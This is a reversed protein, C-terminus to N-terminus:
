HEVPLAIPPSHPVFGKEFPLFFGILKDGSMVLYAEHVNSCELTLVQDKSRLVDGEAITGVQEWRTTKRLTRSNSCPTDTLPVEAPLVITRTSHQTPQYTAATYTVHALDFACAACLFGTISIAMSLQRTM